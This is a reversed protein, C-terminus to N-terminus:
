LSLFKSKMDFITLKNILRHMLYTHTRDGTFDMCRHWCDIMNMRCALSTARDYNYDANNYEDEEKVREDEM